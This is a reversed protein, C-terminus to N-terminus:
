LEFSLSFIDVGLESPESESKKAEAQKATPQVSQKVTDRPSDAVAAPTSEASTNAQEADEMGSCSTLTAALISSAIAHAFYKQSQM